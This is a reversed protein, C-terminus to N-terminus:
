SIQQDYLRKKDQIIDNSYTSNIKELYDVIFHFLSVDSIQLISQKLEEDLLESSILKNDKINQILYNVKQNM